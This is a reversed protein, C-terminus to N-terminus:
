SASPSVKWELQTQWVGLPVAHCRRKELARSSPWHWGDTPVETSTWFVQFFDKELHIWSLFHRSEWNELEEVWNKFPSSKGLNSVSIISAKKELCLNRDNETKNVNGNGNTGWSKKRSFFRWNRRLYFNQFSLLKSVENIPWQQRSM